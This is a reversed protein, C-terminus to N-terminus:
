TAFANYVVGAIAILVCVWAIVIPGYEFLNKRIM